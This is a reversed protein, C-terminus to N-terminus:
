GLCASRWERSDPVRRKFAILREDPSLSPCEVNDRSVRLARAEASGEVLLRTGTYGLTAFFRQSNSRFTM